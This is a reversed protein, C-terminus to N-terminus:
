FQIITYYPRGGLNERGNLITLEIVTVVEVINAGLREVLKCAAGLTGGTALLDDLVIVQDGPELADKHMEITATGYELAYSEEICAAPLKGKKRIPAFGVGLHYALAAGFLFGRSEIGAIRTVRRGECREALLRIIEAFAAPDLLLPTIDKFQIGPIPFDPINRVKEALNM